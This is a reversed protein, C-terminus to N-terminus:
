AAVAVVNAVDDSLAQRHRYAALVAIAINGCMAAATSILPAWLKTPIYYVIWMASCAAGISWSGVSVGMDGKHRVLKTLQPMRNAVMAVGTGYVGATWGFALTPLLSCAGIFAVARALTGLQRLPSLRMVIAAQLPWCFLSGAIIVVDHVAAGYSMWFGGMLCFQFWTTLSVGDIGVTRVRHFQYWTALFSLAVGLWGVVHAFSLHLM